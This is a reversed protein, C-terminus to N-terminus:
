RNVQIFKLTGSSTGLANIVDGYFIRLTVIMNAPLYIGNSATCATGGAATNHKWHCDVTSWMAYVASTGAENGMDTFPSSEAAATSIVFSNVQSMGRVNYIEQVDLVPVMNGASM